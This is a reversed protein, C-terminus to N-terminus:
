KSFHNGQHPFFFSLKWLFFFGQFVITYYDFCHDELFTGPEIGELCLKKKKKKKKKGLKTERKGGMEGWGGGGRTPKEKRKKKKKKKEEENMKKRSKLIKM